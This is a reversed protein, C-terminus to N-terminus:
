FSGGVTMGLERGSVVPLAIVGVKQVSKPAAFAYIVTGVGLAGAGIFSWAAASGFTNKAKISDALGTCESPVNAGTCAAAGNSAKLTDRQTAADGAKGNSVVTFVTGAVLAVGAAVGGTVLIAKNPGGPEVPLPVVTGTGPPAVSAPIMKLSVEKASGATVDVSQVADDRGAFRAVVKRKGPDVFVAEALPSRGISVDDVLVEAGVQDVAVRLTGIKAKAQKLLGEARERRDPPANKLYYAAHEAGDRFKGLQIECDALNGAIQWHRNLSFAALFSVRAEALQNKKSAAVGEEYLQRAKDTMVTGDSPPDAAVAPALASTALLALACLSLLAPVPRM